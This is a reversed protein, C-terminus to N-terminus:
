SWDLYEHIELYCKKQSRSKTMQKVIRQKLIKPQRKALWSSCKLSIHFALLIESHLPSSCPYWIKCKIEGGLFIAEIHYHQQWFCNGNWLSGVLSKQWVTIIGEHQGTCRGGQLSNWIDRQEWTEIMSMKLKQALKKRKFHKFIQVQSFNQWNQTFM